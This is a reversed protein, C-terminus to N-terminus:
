TIAAGGSRYALARASGGGLGESRRLIAGHRMEGRVAWRLAPCHRGAHWFLFQTVDGKALTVIFHSGFWDDEQGKDLMIQLAGVGLALLSFGIYDLKFFGSTLEEGDVDLRSRWRLLM